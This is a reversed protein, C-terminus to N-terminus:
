LVKKWGWFFKCKIIKVLVFFNRQIAFKLTENKLRDILEINNSVDTFKFETKTSTYIPPLLDDDTPIYSHTPKYFNPLKSITKFLRQDSSTEAFFFFKISKKKQRNFDFDTM